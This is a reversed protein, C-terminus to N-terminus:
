AIVHERQFRRPELGRRDPQCAAENRGNGLLTRDRNDITGGCPRLACGRGACRRDPCVTALLRPAAKMRCIVVFTNIAPPPGTPNVTAISRAQRPMWTTTSSVRAGPSGGLTLHLWTLARVM